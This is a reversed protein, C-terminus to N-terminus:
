GFYGAILFTFGSSLFLGLMLILSSIIKLARGFSDSPAGSPFSTHGSMLAVIFCFAIYIPMAVLLSTGFLAWIAFILLYRLMSTEPLFFFCGILTFTSVFIASKAYSSANSQFSSDGVLEKFSIKPM